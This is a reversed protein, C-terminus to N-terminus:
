SAAGQAIPAGHTGRECGPPGTTPTEDKRGDGGGADQPRLHAVCGAERAEVPVCGPPLRALDRYGSPALGPRAGCEQQRRNGLSRRRDRREYSGAVRVLACHQLKSRFVARRTGRPACWHRSGTGPGSHDQGLTRGLILIRQCGLLAHSPDHQAPMTTSKDDLHRAPSTEGDITKRGIQARAISQAEDEQRTM